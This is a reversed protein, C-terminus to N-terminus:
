GGPTEDPGGDRTDNSFCADYKVLGPKMGGPAGWVDLGLQLYPRRLKIAESVM